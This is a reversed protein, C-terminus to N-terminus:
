TYLGLLKDLQDSYRLMVGIESAIKMPNNTGTQKVLDTAKSYIFFSDIM